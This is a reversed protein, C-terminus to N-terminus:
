FFPTSMSLLPHSVEQQPYYCNYLLRLFSSNVIILLCHHHHLSRCGVDEPSIPLTRPQLTRDTVHVSTTPHGCPQQGRDSSSSSITTSPHKQANFWGRHITFRLLHDYCVRLTVLTCSRNHEMITLIKSKSLIMWM